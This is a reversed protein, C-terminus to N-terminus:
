LTEEWFVIGERKYTYTGYLKGDACIIAPYSFEGDGSELDTMREFQECSDKYKYLTLPSRAGWNECVPNCILYVAGNDAKICDLGSNNNPIEIPYAPCWSKGADTSDSRYIFGKDTRMLAHVGGLADEWFCPQIMNADDSAPISVKEFHKGDDDSVEAFCLWRGQETSCPALIRGSSLRIPKNKVPGRGGSEDGQVLEQTNSWSKGGAATTMVMTKWYPIQYGIKYYLTVSGDTRRFLVPNWHPINEEASVIRAKGWVGNECTNVWIAVNNEGEKTGAFWAAIFNEGELKVITSAHCQFPVTPNRFIFQKKM